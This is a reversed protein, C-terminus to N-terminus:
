APQQKITFDLMQFATNSIQLIEVGISPTLDSPPNKTFFMPGTSDNQNYNPQMGIIRTASTSDDYNAYFKALLTNAPGSTVDSDLATIYIEGTSKQAEPTSANFYRRLFCPIGGIHIAYTTDVPSDPLSSVATYDYISTLSYTTTSFGM